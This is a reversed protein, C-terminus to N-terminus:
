FLITLCFQLCYFQFRIPSPRLIESVLLLHSATDPPPASTWPHSAKGLPPTLHAGLSPLVLTENHFIRLAPHKRSLWISACILCNSSHRSDLLFLHIPFVFESTTLMRVNTLSVLICSEYLFIGFPSPFPSHFEFKVRTWM